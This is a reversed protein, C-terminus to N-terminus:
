VTIGSSLRRVGGYMHQNASSPPDTRQVKFFASLFKGGVGIYGAALCTVRTTHLFPKTNRVGINGAALCTVRTTHMHPKTNRVGINGAALCTVRTTYM